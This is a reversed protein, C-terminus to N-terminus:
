KLVDEIKQNLIPGTGAMTPVGSLSADMELLKRTAELGKYISVLALVHIVIGIINNSAFLFLAGLDCVYCLGGAIFASTRRKAAYVGFVVFLGALFLEALAMSHAGAGAKFGYAHILRAMWLGTSFRSRSGNLMNITNLVSLGAIWYFWHAGAKAKNELRLKDEITKTDQDM